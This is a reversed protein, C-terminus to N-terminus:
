PRADLVSDSINNYHFADPDNRLNVYDTDAHGDRRVIDAHSKSRSSVLKKKLVIRKTKVLFVILTMFALFLTVLAMSIGIVVLLFQSDASTPADATTRDYIILPNCEFETKSETSLSINIMYGTNYKLGVITRVINHVGDEEATFYIAGVFFISYNVAVAKITFQQNRLNAGLTISLTIYDSGRETVNVDSTCNEKLRIDLTYNLVSIVDTNNYMTTFFVTYINFQEYTINDLKIYIITNCSHMSCPSWLVCFNLQYGSQYLHTGNLGIVLRHLVNHLSVNVCTELTLNDGINAYMIEQSAEKEYLQLNDPILKVDLSLNLTKNDTTNLRMTYVHAHKPVVNFISFYIFHYMRSGNNIHRIMFTPDRSVNYTYVDDNIELNPALNPSIVCFTVTVNDGINVTKTLNPSFGECMVPPCLRLDVDSSVFTKNRDVDTKECIYTGMDSCTLPQLTYMVDSIGSALTTNNFRKTIHLSENPSYPLECTLTQKDGAYLMEKNKFTFYIGKTKIFVKLHLRLGAKNIVTIDKTGNNKNFTEILLFVEFTNKWKENKEIVIRTEKNTVIKKNVSVNDLLESSSLVCFSVNVSAGEDAFVVKENSENSCIELHD